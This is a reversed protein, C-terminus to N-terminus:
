QLASAIPNKFEVVGRVEWWITEASTGSTVFRGQVEAELDGADAVCKYWDQLGKLRSAPVAQWETPYTQAVTLLLTDLGQAIVTESASSGGVPDPFYGLSVVDTMGASGRPLLRYRVSKFRYLQFVAAIATLNASLSPDANIATTGSVLSDTRFAHFPVSIVNPTKSPKRSRRQRPM